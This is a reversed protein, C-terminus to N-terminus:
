SLHAEYAGGKGMSSHQSAQNQKIAHTVVAAILKHTCCWTMNLLCYKVASNEM